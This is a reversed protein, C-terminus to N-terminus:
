YDGKLLAEAARMAEDGAGAGRSAAGQRGIDLGVKAYFAIRSELSLNAYPNDPSFFGLSPDLSALAEHAVM